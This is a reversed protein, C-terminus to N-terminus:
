QCWLFSIVVYPKIRLLSCLGLSEGSNPNLTCVRQFITGKFLMYWFCCHGSSYFGLMAWFVFTLDFDQCQEGKRNKLESIGGVGWIAGKIRFLLAKQWRRNHAEMGLEWRYARSGHKRESEFPMARGVWCCDYSTLVLLKQIEGIWFGEEMVSSM